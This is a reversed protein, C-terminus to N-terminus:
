LKLSYINFFYENDRIHAYDSKFIGGFKNHWIELEKINKYHASAEQILLQRSQLIQNNKAQYLIYLVISLGILGVITLIIFVSKKNKINM